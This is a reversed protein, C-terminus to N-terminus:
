SSNYRRHSLIDNSSQEIRNTPLILRTSSQSTHTQEQEESTSAPGSSQFTTINSQALSDLPLHIIEMRIIAPQMNYSDRLVMDGISVDGFDIPPATPAYAPPPLSMPPASFSIDRIVDGHDSDDAFTEAPPATARISLHPTIPVKIPESCQCFEDDDEHYVKPPCSLRETMSPVDDRGNDIVDDKVNDIVDDVNATGNIVVDGDGDGDTDKPDLGKSPTTLVYGGDRILRVNLENQKQQKRLKWYLVAIAIAVLFLSAGLSCLVVIVRHLTAAEEQLKAEEIENYNTESRADEAVSKKSGDPENSHPEDLDQARPNQAIPLSYIPAATLVAFTASFFFIVFCDLKMITGSDLRHRRARKAKKALRNSEILDRDERDRHDDNGESKVRKSGKQNEEKMELTAIRQAESVREQLLMVDEKSDIPFLEMRRGIVQEIRQCLEVDYQTVLTISKGSRGARATRGVRHIYDKSNSPIDYNIVVDVLPIDLGRSAVDTAVLINRNGAKFKNLSGLRKSQSLQGHLMIAPFGLNRLILALRQTDNCTRTFIIISNGALENCLFVLYCDKHKFPFFLYYQLLTSVTSYKSSVEVKVPNNLSARQLKAVKTTMTASFLYTHREKPIVKLIKDIVPGFDMDLLKDAEDMVLYKINRLSFGKTNELHDQLRGPTAIVIHPKKSLAIAQSMMDMGGVIVVCRVGIVSGLSEFTESIQYALERTPVLVCAFLGQPAEWLAQLIPLAFAATKGSGTQALGIVDRGQLAWPIAEAQIETPTKYQLKECAQCLSELIGLSKFTSNKTSDSDSENVSESM